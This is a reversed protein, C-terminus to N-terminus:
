DFPNNAFASLSPDYRCTGGSLLDVFCHMSGGIRSARESPIGIADRHQRHRRTVVVQDVIALPEDPPDYYDTFRVLPLHQEIRHRIFPSQPLLLPIFSRLAAVNSKTTTTTALAM